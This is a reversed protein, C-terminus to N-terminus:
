YKRKQAKIFQKQLKKVTQPSCSACGSKCNSDSSISKWFVNGVYGIAVVFLGIVLIEQMM